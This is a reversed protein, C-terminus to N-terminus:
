CCGQGRNVLQWCCSGGLHRWVNGFSGTTFWQLLTLLVIQFGPRCFFALCMLGFGISNSRLFPRFTLLEHIKYSKTVELKKGFLFNKFTHFVSFFEHVQLVSKHNHLPFPFSHSPNQTQPQYNCVIANPTSLCHSGATYVACPVIDLRKHHFM